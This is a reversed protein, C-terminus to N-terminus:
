IYRFMNDRVARKMSVAKGNEFESGAAGGEGSLDELKQRTEEDLEAQTKKNKAVLSEPQSASEVEAATQNVTTEKNASTSAARSTAFPKTLLKQAIIPIRNM